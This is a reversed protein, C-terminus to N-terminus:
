FLVGHCPLGSSLREYVLKLQRLMNATHRALRPNIELAVAVFFALAASMGPRHHHLQPPVPRWVGDIEVETVRGLVAGDDHPMDPFILADGRTIVWGRAAGRRGRWIVRHVRVVCKGILVGIVAGPAPLGPECAIRIRCGAPLSGLMSAGQVVFELMTRRRKFQATLIRRAGDDAVLADAVRSVTEDAVASPDIMADM